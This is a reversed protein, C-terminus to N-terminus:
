KSDEETAAASEDAAASVDEVAMEEATPAFRNAYARSDIHMTVSTEYLATAGDWAITGPTADVFATVRALARLWAEVDPMAPSTATMVITAVRPGQLPATALPYPILPTSSEIVAGTVAMGAPVTGRLETLYPQWSIETASGIRRAATAIDLQQQVLQVEIFQGQQQLLSATRDQEAELKEASATAGINALTFGGSCVLAAVVVVGVLARRTSYSKARAAVEPPLLAIRAEGGIDLKLDKKSSPNM